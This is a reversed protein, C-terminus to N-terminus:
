PQAAISGTWEQRFERAAGSREAIRDAHADPEGSEAEGGNEESCCAAAARALALRARRRSRLQRPGALEEGHVSGRVADGHGQDRGEVARVTAVVEVDVRALEEEGHREAPGDVDDARVAARDEVGAGDHPSGPRST